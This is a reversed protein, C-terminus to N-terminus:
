DSDDDTDDDLENDVENGEEDDSFLVNDEDDSPIYDGDYEEEADDFGAVYGHRVDDDDIFATDAEEEAGIVNNRFSVIKGQRPVVVAYKMTRGNIDGNMTIAVVNGVEAGIWVCQVDEVFIRPLYILHCRLDNLLQITEAEGMIRHPFCLPGETMVLAFNDHSLTKVALHSRTVIAKCGHRRIALKSIIIVNSPERIRDLILKLKNSKSSFDSDHSFFFILLPRREGAVTCRTLTYLRSQMEQVFQLKNYPKSKAVYGLQQAFVLINQYRDFEVTANNNM